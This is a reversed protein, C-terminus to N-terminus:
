RERVRRIGARHYTTQVLVYLQVLWPLVACGLLFASARSTGVAYLAASESIILMGANVRVFTRVTARNPATPGQEKVAPAMVIGVDVFVAFGFIPAVTGAVIFLERDLAEHVHAGILDVIGAAALVAAYVAICLLWSAAVAQDRKETM